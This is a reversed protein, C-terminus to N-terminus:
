VLKLHPHKAPPEPAEHKYTCQCEDLIAQMAKFYRAATRAEQLDGAESLDRIGLLAPIEEDGVQINYHDAWASVAAEREAVMQAQSAFMAELDQKRMGSQALFVEETIGESEISMRFAQEVFQRRISVDERPVRQILRKALEDACASYKQEEAMQADIENLQRRIMDRLESAGHIGDFKDRIWADDFMREPGGGAQMITFRMAEDIADEPLSPVEVEISVPDYSTLTYHARGGIILPESGVLEM